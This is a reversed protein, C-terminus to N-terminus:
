SAYNVTFSVDNLTAKGVDWLSDYLIAEKLQPLALLPSLDGDAVTSLEVVELYTLSEIGSLTQLPTERMYLERISTLGELTEFSTIWTKGIDVNELMKCGSLSSLDSVHTEYLSLLKLAPLSGLPSVDALPNHRLDVTELSELGALPSIDTLDELVIRVTRLNKCQSLDDLSTLGGNKLVGDNLAMHTGLEDFSPSDAVAQDGYIYLESVNLLDTETIPEDEAKGLVARVAQEILPEQFRVGGKSFPLATDTYRGIAFGACLCAACALVACGWRVARKQRHGDANRLAKKVQAASRYRKDPAFATCKKVVRRLRRNPINRCIDRRESNQTLMWGLLVGLSFIDTRTDTQAFGYQEPPAFDKTGFCVTDGRADKNYTRSIGFDILHLGGKEDVILNQPKIDRHIVPPTQGHLYSLIDCLEAAFAVAQRESLANQAAYRDLPTGQVYERVVCLMRENEFQGSFRPLGPHDLKKLIDAETVHSLFKKDTYCKAIFREDTAKNKVLLTIDTREPTLCELAEYESLFDDPYRANDSESLISEIYDDRM